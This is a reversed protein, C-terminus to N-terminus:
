KCRVPFILGIFIMYKCKEELESESSTSAAESDDYNVEFDSGESDIQELVDDEDIVSRGPTSM